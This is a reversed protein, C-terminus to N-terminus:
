KSKVQSTFERYADEITQVEKVIISYGAERLYDQLEVLKKEYQIITLGPLPNSRHPIYVVIKSQGKPVLFVKSGNAAAALAKEAIGGVLGISEDNNITGTIFVTKNLRDGRIAAIIAVTIAAGASPGDVIEVENSAKITLVVDTKGLSVGTFKEAVKVATTVSTQVDIGIKPVTNVLIRGEGERLEVDVTMVVGEFQINFGRQVARVAVIPVTAHGMVGKTAVGSSILSSYYEAQKKYYEMQIKTLNLEQELKRLSDSLRNMQFRLNYWNWVAYYAASAFFINVILSIALLRSRNSSEHGMM